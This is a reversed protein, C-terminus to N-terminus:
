TIVPAAVGIYNMILTIIGGNGILSAIAAMLVGHLFLTMGNRKFSCRIMIANFDLALRLLLGVGDLM